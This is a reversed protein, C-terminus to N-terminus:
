VGAIDFAFDAIKAPWDVTMQHSYPATILDLYTALGLLPVTLPLTYIFRFIVLNQNVM